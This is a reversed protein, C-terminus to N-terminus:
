DFDFLFWMVLEMFQKLYQVVKIFYEITETITIMMPQVIQTLNFHQMM